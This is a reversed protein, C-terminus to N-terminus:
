GSHVRPHNAGDPAVLQRQRRVAASPFYERGPQASTEQLYSAANFPVMEAIVPAALRAPITDLFAAVDVTPLTQLVEAAAHPALNLYSLTLTPRKSM